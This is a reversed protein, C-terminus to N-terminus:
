IREIVKYGSKKHYNGFRLTDRLSNDSWGNERCFTKLCDINLVTGDRHELVWKRSRPNSSGKNQILKIASIKAKSKPTHKPKGMHSKSIKRKTEESLKKGLCPHPNHYLYDAMVHFGSENVRDGRHRHIAVHDDPHLAILNTPHDTGGLSKPKIHHVHFGVPIDWDPEYQRRYEVLARRYSM